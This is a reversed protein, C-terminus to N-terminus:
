SDSAPENHVVPPHAPHLDPTVVLWRVVRELGAPLSANAHNFMASANLAVEFVLVAAAPAGLAAVTMCKIVTSILIEVPHFRTGTTVDVDLDSHHVRDSRG